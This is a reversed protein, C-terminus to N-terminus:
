AKTSGGKPLYKSGGDSIFSPLANDVIYIRPSALHLQITAALFIDARTSNDNKSSVHIKRFIFAGLDVNIYNM